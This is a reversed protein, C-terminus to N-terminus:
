GKSFINNLSKQYDETLDNWTAEQIKKRPILIFDTPTKILEKNRRFVERAWRKIKNRIVSKGHRKSVVVAMRSFNLYNSHYIFIFYKGKYRLGEKYIRSFDSQKKIRECPRLSESM